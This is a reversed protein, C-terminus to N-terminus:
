EILSTDQTQTCHRVYIFCCMYVDLESNTNSTYYQNHIFDQYGNKNTEFMENSQEHINIIFGTKTYIVFDSTNWKSINQKWIIILM